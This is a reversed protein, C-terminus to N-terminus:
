KAAFSQGAQAIQLALTDNAQLKKVVELLSPVAQQGSQFPVYHVWPKISRCLCMCTYITVLYRQYCCLCSNHSSYRLVAVISCYTELMNM